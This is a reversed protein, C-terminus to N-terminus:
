KTSEERQRSAKPPLRLLPIMASMMVTRPGLPLRLPIEAIAIARM